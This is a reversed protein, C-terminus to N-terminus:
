RERQEALVGTLQEDKQAVQREQNALRKELDDLKREKVSLVDLKKDLLDERKDLRAEHEQLKRRVSESEREAAQKVKMQEQQAALEIERAKTTAELRATERIQDAEVKAQALASRGAFHMFAFAGGAGDVIGIILWIIEMSSGAREGRPRFGGRRALLVRLRHPSPLCVM